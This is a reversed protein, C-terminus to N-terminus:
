AVPEVPSLWSERWWPYIARPCFWRNESRDGSCVVKDLIYCDSKLTIMRGTPEDVFHDVRALITARRGCYPRMEAVDFYLGRTKRSGDLQAVIEEWRRVQVLQGPRLGRPPDGAKAKPNLEAHMRRGFGGLGISRATKWVALVAARKARSSIRIVVARSMVRMFRAKGVNGHAMESRLSAGSWGTALTSARLLETAQCRYLTQGDSSAVTATRRVLQEIGDAGLLPDRRAPGGEDVKRLWDEKWYLRCRAGCGDHGTGDCRLDELIVAGEIKRTGKWTLTDCARGVHAAVVFRRGIFSVMEPM